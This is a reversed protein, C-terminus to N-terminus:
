ADKMKDLFAHVREANKGIDSGGVRSISRIDVLTGGGESNRLRIIVDDKFGYWFTTDTAEITGAEPNTAKIKWGMQRAVAEAKAFAAQKEDSVVISRIDPYGRTQLVSVLAETRNGQADKAPATKGAYDTTNVGDIKAREAMIESGFQPVNQTDTTIDHIFPLRQAKNKVQVAYGLGLIPVLIGILGVAIGKKPKVLIALILAIISVFLGLILVNPGLQRTLTGLSFGLSFLGIKYGIAALIFILPGIVTLAMSLRLVWKRLNRRKRGTEKPPPVSMSTQKGPNNNPVPTEQETM